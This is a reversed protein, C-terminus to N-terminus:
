DPAWVTVKRNPSPQATGGASFLRSGDPSFRVQIVWEPADLEVLLNLRPADWLAIKGNLGATALMEGTPSWDLTFTENAGTAASQIAAGTAADWLAISGDVYAVALIEGSPNFKLEQSMARPLVYLLKGTATEFVLTKDNRHGVALLKGNPSFAPTLGGKAPGVDLSRILKGTAADWLKAKTGYGGTALLKGDPSFVPRPQENTTELVIPKEVRLDCVEVRSGSETWAITHGDVAIAFHILNRNEGIVKTSELAVPDFLEVATKWGILALRSRGPGWVLQWADRPIQGVPRLRAANERTIPPSPKVPPAPAAMVAALFALLGFATALQTIAHM